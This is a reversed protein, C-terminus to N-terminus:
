APAVLPLRDLQGALRVAGQGGYKAEYWAAQARAMWEGVSAGAAPEVEALGITAGLSLLRGQQEPSLAALELALGQGWPLAVASACGPLLLAFTDAELRAVAETTRVQSRLVTAVQRLLADGAARGAQVNVRNFRDLDLILLTAQLGPLAQALWTALHSEFGARDLLGTLADYSAPAAARGRSQAQGLEQLLWLTGAAPDAPDVKQCQLRAKFSSGDRRRYDLDGRYAKASAFAARVAVGLADDTNLSSFVEYPSRGLIEGRSWGTLACFEANVREFRRELTLGVGVPAAAVVAALQKQLKQNQRREVQLANAGADAPRGRGPWQGLAQLLTRVRSLNHRQKM